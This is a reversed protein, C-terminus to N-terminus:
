EDCRGLGGPAKKVDVNKSFGHNRESGTGVEALKWRPVRGKWEDCLQEFLNARVAAVQDQDLFAVDM